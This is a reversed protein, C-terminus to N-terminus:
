DYNEEEAELWGTLAPRSHLRFLVLSVIGLGAIAGLTLSTWVTWDFGASGSAIETTDGLAGPTVAATPAPSPTATVPEFMSEVAASLTAADPLVLYLGGSRRAFERWLEGSVDSGAITVVRRGQRGFQDALGLLKERYDSETGQQEPPLDLTGDTIHVLCPSTFARLALNFGALPDTWQNTGMSAGVAGAIVAPEASAPVDLLQAGDSYAAFDGAGNAGSNKEAQLVTTLTSMSWSRTPGDDTVSGSFDLLKDCPRVQFAASRGVTVGLLLLCVAASFLPRNILLHKTM